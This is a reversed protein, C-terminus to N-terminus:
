KAQKTLYAVIGTKVKAKSIGQYQFTTKDLCMCTIDTLTDLYKNLDKVDYQIHHLQPNLEKLKKEYMAILAACAAEFTDHTTYTRSKGEQVLLITHSKSGVFQAM